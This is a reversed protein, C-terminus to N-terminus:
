SFALSSTPRVEKMRLYLVRRRSEEDESRRRKSPSVEFGLDELVDGLSGVPDRVVRTFPTLLDGYSRSKRLRRQQSNVTSERNQHLSNTGPRLADFIFSM